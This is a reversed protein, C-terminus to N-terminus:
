TRHVNLDSLGSFSVKGDPNWAIAVVEEIGPAGKDVEVEWKKSGQMKWLAIRDKNGIRSVIIVLDKDPCCASRLLKSPHALSLTSLVEFRGPKQAPEPLRERSKLYRNLIAIAEEDSCGCTTELTRSWAQERDHHLDM